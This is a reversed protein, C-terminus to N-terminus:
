GLDGGKAPRRSNKVQESQTAWRVNGPEYNGDNNIRDLTHNDPRSGLLTEIDLVFLELDHWRDCVKIGRGGWYKYGTHSPTECRGIMNEWTSSLYHENGRRSLGHRTAAAIQHERRLCGCSRTRQNEPRKGVLAQLASVYENGCDCLLQAARLSTRNPRPIRVDIEIVVGRGIRQGLHVFLTPKPM